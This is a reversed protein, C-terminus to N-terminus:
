KECGSAYGRGRLLNLVFLAILQKFIDTFVNIARNRFHNGPLEFAARVYPQRRARGRRIQVLILKSRTASNRHPSADLGSFVM